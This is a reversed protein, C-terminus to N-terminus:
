LALRLSASTAAAASPDRWTGQEKGVRETLEDLQAQKGMKSQALTAYETRRIDAAEAEASLAKKEKTDTFQTM